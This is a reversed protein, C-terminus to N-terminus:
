LAGHSHHENNVLEVVSNYAAKRTIMWHGDQYQLVVPLGGSREGWTAGHTVTAGAMNNPAPEIDTVTYDRPIVRGWFGVDGLLRDFKQGLDGDFAPTVIDSKNVAPINPDTLESMIAAVQDVTPVPGTCPPQDPDGCDAHATAPSVFLAMTLTALAPLKIWNM